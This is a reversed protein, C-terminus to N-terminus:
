GEKGNRSLGEVLAQHWRRHFTRQVGEELNSDYALGPGSWEPMPKADGMGDMGMQYNLKVNAKRAFVGRAARAVSSWVTVDDQELNGSPSFMATAVRFARQKYETSSEKPVLVWSWAEM